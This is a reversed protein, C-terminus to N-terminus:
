IWNMIKSNEPFEMDPLVGNPKDYSDDIVEMTIKSARDVLETNIKKVDEEKIWYNCATLAGCLEGIITTLRMQNKQERTM